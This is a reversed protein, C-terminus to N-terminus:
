ISGIIFNFINKSILTNKDYLVSCDSFKEDYKTINKLLSNKVDNESYKKVNRM